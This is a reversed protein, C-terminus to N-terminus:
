RRLAQDVLRALRAASDADLGWRAAAATSLLLGPATAGPLTVSPVRCGAALIAARRLLNEAEGADLGLPELDIPVLHTDTGGSVVRLGHGILEKALARALRVSREATARAADSGAATLAFAHAALERSGLRPLPATARRLRHRLTRPGGDLPMAADRGSLVLGSRPGGLPASSAITVHADDVPSPHLGTAILGTLGAVDAILLADVSDAIERMAATDLLRSDSPSGCLIVAPRHEAALDAAAALDVRDRGDLGFGLWGSAYDRVATGSDPSPGRTMRIDFVVDDPEVLAALVHTLAEAPSHPSLEAYRAGFAQRAREEALETTTGRLSDAPVAPLLSANPTLDLLAHHDGAPSRPDPRATTTGTFEATTM